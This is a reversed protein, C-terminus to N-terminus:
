TYGNNFSQASVTAQFKYLSLLINFIQLIISKEPWHIKM